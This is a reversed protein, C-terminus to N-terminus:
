SVDGAYNFWKIQLCQRLTERARHMLVHYHNAQLGCKQQIERADFDLIERMMFVRATNEPLTYLCLQLTQLFQKEQLFADPQPTLWDTLETDNLWQGNKDFQQSFLEDLQNESQEAVFVAQWRQQQRLIEKVKNKLIGFIWTTLQSQTRFTAYKEYAVILTEQVLDEILDPQNPLQIHAFRLLNQRIHPWNPNPSTM